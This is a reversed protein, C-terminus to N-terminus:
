LNIYEVPESIKFRGSIIKTKLEDAAKLARLRDSQRVVVPIGKETEATCYDIKGLAASFANGACNTSCLGCNFCLIPSHAASEGRKHTVAGMPCTREVECVRCDICESPQYTVEDDVNSWVDAYNTKCLPLRGSVDVVKLEIDSNIKVINDLIDQNIVPIPVAWTNIIEPGASTVFGGMYEPIMEHMDSFGGLNPKGPSSRTGLGSVYGYNGNIMVRTGIGITQLDPDNEIPNLEGCGCFTAESLNGRFEAAHFISPLSENVPNVFALYNRFAHRTGFLKAYQMDKINTHTSFWHGEVTEIEVTIPKGEVIERFLHGGGYNPNTKSHATGHVILDLVGLRENPCPGVQAPVNNLWVRSAKIFSNPEAVKFSFVAYTGSMIGRTATTVVDVDEFNIKEGSRVRNCIEDATLVVAKENDIKKQIEQYTREKDSM